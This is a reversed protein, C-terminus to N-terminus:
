IFARRLDSQSMTAMIILDINCERAVRPIEDGAKGETLLLNVKQGHLLESGAMEELEKKIARVWDYGNETLSKDSLKLAQPPLTGEQANHIYLTSGYYRTFAAAYKLCSKSSASFDTPFLINKFQYM